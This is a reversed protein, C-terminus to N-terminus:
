TEGGGGGEREREREKNEETYPVNLLATPQDSFVVVGLCSDSCCFKDIRM